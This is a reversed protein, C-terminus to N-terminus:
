GDHLAPAWLITRAVEAWHRQRAHPTREPGTQWLTEGGSDYLITRCGARRGAEVDDLTDGVMWSRKLDLGHEAAAHRLMLPQPKRCVCAPSGDARPAHPCFVFDTLRVGAEASLRRAISARLREFQAASFRGRALGSQNSVVVLAYGAQQLSALAECAGPQWRVLAPDANYPVDVLLTGDKDLFVAPRNM